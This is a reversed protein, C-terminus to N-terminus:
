LSDPIFLHQVIWILTTNLFIDIILQSPTEFLVFTSTPFVLM